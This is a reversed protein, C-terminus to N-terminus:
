TGEAVLKTYAVAVRNVEDSQHRLVFEKFLSSFPEKSTYSACKVYIPVLPLDRRGIEYILNQSQHTKGRGYDGYIAAKYGDGSYAAGELEDLIYDRRKRDLDGFLYQRHTEPEFRFTSFGPRMFFWQDMTKM